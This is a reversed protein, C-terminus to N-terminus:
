CIDWIFSIRRFNTFVFIKIFFLKIEKTYFGLLFPSKENLSEIMPSSLTVDIVM